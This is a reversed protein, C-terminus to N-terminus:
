ILLAADIVPIDPDFDFAARTHGRGIEAIKPAHVAAVSTIWQPTALDSHSQAASSREMPMIQCDQPATKGPKEPPNKCRRTDCCHGKSALPMFFQQCSVCGGWLYSVVLLLSWCSNSFAGYM